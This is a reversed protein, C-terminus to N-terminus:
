AQNVVNALQGDRGLDQVLWAFWCVFLPLDKAVMGLVGVPKDFRESRPQALPGLRSGLVVLAVVALAVRFADRALVDRERTSDDGDSVGIVDHGRRPRVLLGHRGLLGAASSALHAPVWNSGSTTRANRVTLMPRSRSM